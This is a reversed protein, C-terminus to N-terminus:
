KKAKVAIAAKVPDVILQEGEELGALVEIEGNGVAEGLRVQRLGIRGDGSRVYVASVEGRRVVSAAPVTLRMAEGVVFHVRAFMGPTLNTALDPLPPLQVRVQAARTSTDVTPLVIVSAADVWRNLDPFEVRATKVGRVDKLRFQPVNATVRLGGPEYITFLPRGPTAMDGAEAHRRAIVGSIPAVITSHSQTAAAGGRQAAAADLDAKAKDLAAPSVFKQEVLRRTREYSAKANIYQAEAAAVAEASERADIRMLLEGKKVSQGADARVEIVRGGIQAAVTAQQVAEVTAEVPYLTAVNHSKVVQTPLEQAGAAFSLLFCSALFSFHTANM